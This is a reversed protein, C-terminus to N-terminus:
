SIAARRSPTWRAARSGHSRARGDIGNFMPRRRFGLRDRDRDRYRNPHLCAGVVRHLRRSVAAEGSVSPIPLQSRVAPHCFTAPPTVKQGDQCGDAQPPPLNLTPPQVNLTEEKGHHLRRAQRKRIDGASGTRGASGLRTESVGPGSDASVPETRPAVGKKPM